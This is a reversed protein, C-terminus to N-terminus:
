PARRTTSAARHRAARSRPQTTRRGAPDVGDRAVSDAATGGPEGTPGAAEDDPEGTPGAAEDDPEGAAPRRHSRASGRRSGARPRAPARDRASQLLDFGEAHGLDVRPSPAVVDPPLWTSTRGLTDIGPLGDCVLSTLYGSLRSRPMSRHRMWWDGSAHVMGVMGYAWAEAPGSDAGGARLGEGLVVAIRRSIQGVFDDITVASAGDSSARGVLFRYVEPESEVFQLYADIAAAVLERPTVDARLAEDVAASLLSFAFTSIADALGSRDGFHRYLIPKTVGAAAAMQDM